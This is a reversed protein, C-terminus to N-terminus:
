RSWEKACEESCIKPEGIEDEAEDIFFPKGCWCCFVAIDKM